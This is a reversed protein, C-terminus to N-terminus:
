SKLTGQLAIISIGLMTMGGKCNRFFIKLFVTYLVFVEGRIKQFKHALDIKAM